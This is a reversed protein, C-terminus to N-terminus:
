WLDATGGPCYPLEGAGKFATGGCLTNYPPVCPVHNVSM